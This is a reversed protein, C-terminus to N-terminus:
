LIYFNYYTICIYINYIMYSITGKNNKFDRPVTGHLVERGLHERLVDRDIATAPANDLGGRDREVRTPTKPRHSYAM